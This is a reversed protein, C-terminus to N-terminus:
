DLDGHEIDVYLELDSESAEEWDPDYLQDDNVVLLQTTKPAQSETEINHTSPTEITPHDKSSRSERQIPM